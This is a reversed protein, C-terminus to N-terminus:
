HDGLADGDRLERLLTSRYSARVESGILFFTAPARERELMRVFAPSLAAPGDDFGIAVEHLHGGHKYALQGHSRCGVIRYLARVPAVARERVPSPKPASSAPQARASRSGSELAVGA